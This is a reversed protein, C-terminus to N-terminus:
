WQWKKNHEWPSIQLLYAESFMNFYERTILVNVNKSKRQSGVLVPKLEEQRSVQFSVVQTNRRNNQRSCSHAPEWRCISILCHTEQLLGAWGLVNRDVGGQSRGPAKIKRASQKPRNGTYILHLHVLTLRGRKIQRFQLSLWKVM